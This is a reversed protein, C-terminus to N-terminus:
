NASPKEVHDIYLVPAPGRSSKLRLGLEGVATFISPWPSSTNSPDTRDDLGTGHWQLTFDYTGALKTQDSVVIGLLTSLVDALSEMSCQHAIIENGLPGSRSEIHPGDLDTVEGSNLPGHKSTHLKPGNQATILALSPFEKLGQHVKLKFRDALLMQLMHQKELKANDDSLQQLQNDVSSGSKAQVDFTESNLWGPGGVIRSSDVDYAIQILMKTTLNTAYFVARHAPNNTSVTRDGSRNEKVSAVDFTFTPSYTAATGVLSEPHEQGFGITLGPGVCWMAVFLLRVAFRRGHVEIRKDLV